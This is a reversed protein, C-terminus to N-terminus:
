HRASMRDRQWEVVEREVWRTAFGVKVYGPFSGQKVLRYITTRGLGVMHKVEALSILRDYAAPEGLHNSAAM